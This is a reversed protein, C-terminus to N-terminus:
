RGGGEPPGAAASGIVRLLEVALGALPDTPPLVLAVAPDGAQRSQQAALATQATKVLRQLRKLAALEERCSRIRKAIEEPAPLTIPNSM